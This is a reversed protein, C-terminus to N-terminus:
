RTSERRRPLRREPEVRVIEHTVPDRYRVQHLLRRAGPDDGPLLLREERLLGTREDIGSRKWIRLDPPLPEYRGLFFESLTTGQSAFFIVFVAGWFLLAALVVPATM